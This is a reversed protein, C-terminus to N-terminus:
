KVGSVRMLMLEKLIAVPLLFEDITGNSQSSLYLELAVGNQSCPHSLYARGDPIFCRDHSLPVSYFTRHRSLAISRELPDFIILVREPLLIPNIM